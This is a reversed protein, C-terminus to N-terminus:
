VNLKDDSTSFDTSELMAMRIGEGNHLERLSNQCTEYLENFHNVKEDSSFLVNGREFQVKNQEAAQIVVKLMTSNDKYKAILDSYDDQTLSIGSELLRVDNTLKSGDMQGWKQAAAEYEEKLKRSQQYFNQLANNNKGNAEQTLEEFRVQGIQGERLQISAQKKLAAAADMEHKAFLSLEKLATAYKTM